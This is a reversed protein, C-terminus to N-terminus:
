FNKCYILIEDDYVDLIPGKSGNRRWLYLQQRWHKKPKGIKERLITQLLIIEFPNPNTANKALTSDLEM